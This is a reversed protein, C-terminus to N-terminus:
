QIRNTYVSIGCLLETPSYLLHLFLNSYVKPAIVKALTPMAMSSGLKGIQIASVIFALRQCCPTANRGALM